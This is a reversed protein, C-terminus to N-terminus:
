REKDLADLGLENRRKVLIDYCKRDREKNTRCHKLEKVYISAAKLESYEGLTVLTQIYSEARTM